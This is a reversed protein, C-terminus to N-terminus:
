RNTFRHSFSCVVLDGGGVTGPFVAQTVCEEEIATMVDPTDNAIYRPWAYLMRVRRGDHACLRSLVCRRTGPRCFFALM